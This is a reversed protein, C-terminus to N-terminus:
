LRATQFRYTVRGLREITVDRDISEWLLQDYMM